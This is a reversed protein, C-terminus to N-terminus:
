HVVPITVPMPTLLRKCWDISMVSQSQAVKLAVRKPKRKILNMQRPAVTSLFEEAEDICVGNPFTKKTSNGFSGLNVKKRQKVPMLNQKILSRIRM